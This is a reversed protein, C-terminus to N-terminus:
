KWRCSAFKCLMVGNTFQGFIGLSGFLNYYFPNQQSPVSDANISLKPLAIERALSHLSFFNIVFTTLEGPNCYYKGAQLNSIKDQAPKSLRM